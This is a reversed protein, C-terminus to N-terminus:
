VKQIIEIFEFACAIASSNAWEDFQDELEISPLTCRPRIELLWGNMWFRISSESM